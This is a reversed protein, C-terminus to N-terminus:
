RHFFYQKIQSVGYAVAGVFIVASGIIKLAFGGIKFANIWEHIEQVQKRMGADGNGDGFVAKEIRLLREETTKENM